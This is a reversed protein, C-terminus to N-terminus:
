YHSCFYVGLTLSTALDRCTVLLPIGKHKTNPEFKICVSVAQSLIFLDLPLPGGLNLGSSSHLSTLSLVGTGCTEAFGDEMIWVGVCLLLRVKARAVRLSAGVTTQLLRDDLASAREAASLLSALLSAM